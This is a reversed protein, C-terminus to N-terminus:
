AVVSAHGTRADREPADGVTEASSVASGRVTGTPDVRWTRNLVTGSFALALLASPAPGTM